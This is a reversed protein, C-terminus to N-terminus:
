KLKLIKHLPINLVADLKDQMMWQLLENVELRGYCVSFLFQPPAGYNSYYSKMFDIAQKYDTKDSVVFKIFDDQKLNYFNEKIMAKNVGSGDLKYDMVINCCVHIGATLFSGNTEMSVKYNNKILYYILNQIDKQFMPEGGTITIKNLGIEQIKSIIEEISFEIGAKKDQAYATDCYNCKLNCGAFRVFTSLRGQHFQNVEGDISAFIENVIM